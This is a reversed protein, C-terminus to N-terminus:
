FLYLRAEGREFKGEGGNMKRKRKIKRKGGAKFAARSLGSLLFILLFLFSFSGM